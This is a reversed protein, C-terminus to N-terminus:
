SDSENNNESEDSVRSSLDDRVVNDAGPSKDSKAKHILAGLMRRMGMLEALLEDRERKSDLRLQKLTEQAEDHKHTSALQQESILACETELKNMRKILSVGKRCSVCCFMIAKSRCKTLAEYLSDEVRDPVRVYMVHEWQECMDCQMAKDEQEVTNRCIGCTDVPVETQQKEKPM